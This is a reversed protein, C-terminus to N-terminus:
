SIEYPLDLYEEFHKLLLTQTAFEYDYFHKKAEYIFAEKDKIYNATNQDLIFCQLLLSPNAIQQEISLEDLLSLNEMYIFIQGSLNNIPDKKYVTYGYDALVKQKKSFNKLVSLNYSSDYNYQVVHFLDYMVTAILNRTEYDGDPYQHNYLNYHATDIIDSIDNDVFNCLYRKRFTAYGQLLLNDKDVPNVIDYQVKYAEREATSLVYFMKVVDQECPMTLFQGSYEQESCFSVPHEADDLCIALNNFRSEQDVSCEWHDLLHHQLRHELEHMLVSYIVDPDEKDLLFRNFCITNKTKDYYANFIRESDCSPTFYDVSVLPDIGLEQETRNAIEMLLLQKQTLTYQHWQSHLRNLLEEKTESQFTKMGGILDKPIHM